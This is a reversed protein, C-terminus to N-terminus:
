RNGQGVFVSGGSMGGPKAVGFEALITPAIDTLAPATAQLKKSSLLVGPVLTFDMCHDGSWAELNDELVEAAFGGLVSSWGARYGRSYGIVLDPADKMRAGSYAQDGRDVRLVALHNDAPDRLGLLKASLEALLAPAAEPEVTGYRERGRLNLYLGNLGLGYARTRSWDVNAFFEGEGGAGEKLALYGNELLWTNLNFSRTFPAFGHDSLALLTTEADVHALAKGVAADMERYLEEILGAYKEGVEPRYAPHKPDMARWFMHSNQDVSSFYFFLLGSRFRRLEGEFARMQEALVMRAQQLYEADSLIGTTLAKTDEAIGQTYFPGHEAALEGAYDGPTSLPLAPAAPDVNVPTVYLAFRPQAQKLYFKVIGSVNVLPALHFEVRVWESWEGERLIFEQGPLAIKAVPEVADVWVTFNVATAPQGKRLTNYPGQLQADIRSGKREIGYVRGGNVPGAPQLPDDTYFSFTGYTGLLDPTGMGALTRAKSEVPPFNAPMRYITAPIGQEDLYEWFARGYRLLKVKGSSLPITWGFLAVTRKPPEVKSTSLYPEMTAPDRHIFDFVGHGGPNLGTILNSWAVPSQPPNSTTLPVFSGMAALKAFNALKGEAMFQRLLTYDLGDIGLVIVKKTTTGAPQRSCGALGLLVVVTVGVLYSCAYLFARRM